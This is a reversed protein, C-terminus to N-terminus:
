LTESIILVIAKEINDNLRKVENLNELIEILKEDM